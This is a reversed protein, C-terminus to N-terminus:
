EAGRMLLVALPTRAIIKLDTLLSRERIYRLDLEIRQEYTLSSRGSVQWLGTLGPKVSVFEAADAGYKQELEVATVPRPGVISMEGRLVNFLQPAEDISTRRLWRGVHTIRPDNSLKFQRSFHEAHEPTLQMDTRMSRFKYVEILKGDRGVRTHHFLIPGRSTLRVAVAAILLLPSLFLIALSAIAIDSVTKVTQYTRRSLSERLRYRDITAISLRGEWGRSSM